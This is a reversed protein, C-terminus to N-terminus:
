NRLSYDINDPSTASLWFGESVAEQYDILKGLWQIFGFEKKVLMLSYSMGIIYRILKVLLSSVTNIVKCYRIKRKTIRTPKFDGM